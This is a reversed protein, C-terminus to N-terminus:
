QQNNARQLMKIIVESQLIFGPLPRRHGCLLRLCRWGRMASQHCTQPRDDGDSSYASYLSPTVPTQHRCALLLVMITLAVYKAPQQIMRFVMAEAASLDYYLRRNSGAPHNLM